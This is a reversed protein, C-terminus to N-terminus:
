HTNWNTSLTHDIKHLERAFLDKIYKLNKPDDAEFRLTIQPGTNSARILGWGNAFDVRIGDLLNINGDDFNAESKLREVIIFKKKDDVNIRIEATSLSKPFEEFLQDLSDGQLSLIEILRAAAYMGDDFGYWRDKIFLHGSYEGGLLAGTEKMKEKMPSHGTKWMIPRGGYTTVLSSLHRTSKVDFIVDSGPNRSLIDKAFLMLLIDPWIIKGSATVVM